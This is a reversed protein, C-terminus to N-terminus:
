GSELFEHTKSIDAFVDLVAQCRENRIIFMVKKLASPLDCGPEVRHEINQRYAEHNKWPM